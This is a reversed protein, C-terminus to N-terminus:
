SGARLASEALEYLDDDEADIRRLLASCMPPWAALYAAPERAVRDAASWSDAFAVFAASLGGMEERYRRVAATVEPRDLQELAPYLWADELQLHRLLVLRLRAIADVAHSAAVPAAAPVGRILDRLVAHHDRCTQIHHRRVLESM